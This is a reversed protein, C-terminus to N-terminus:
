RGIRSELTMPPISKPQLRPVFGPLRGFSAIAFAVDDDAEAAYIEDGTVVDVTIGVADDHGFFGDFWDILVGSDRQHLRTWAQEPSTARM